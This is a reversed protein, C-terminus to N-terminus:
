AKLLLSPKLSATGSLGLGVVLKLNTVEYSCDVLEESCYLDRHENRLALDVALSLYMVEDSCDTIENHQPHQRSGCAAAM